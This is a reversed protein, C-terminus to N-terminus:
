EFKELFNALNSIPTDYELIVAGHFGAEVKCSYIFQSPIIIMTGPRLVVDVFQVEKVLPTDNITMAEPYLWRWEKPLFEESRKSLLSLTYKGETVLICTYIATSRKMGHGGLLVSVRTSMVAGMYGILETSFDKMIHTSWKDLALEVALTRGSAALILPVGSDIYPNTRYMSLTPSNENMNLPFLDLRPIQQLNAQTFIQPFPSGRIVIPHKDGILEGLTTPANAFEIQYIEITDRRHKYFLVGILFLLAICIVLEIIM